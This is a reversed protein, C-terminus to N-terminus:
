TDLPSFLSVADQLETEEQLTFTILVILGEEDIAFQTRRGVESEDKVDLCWYNKRLFTVWSLNYEEYRSAAMGLFKQSDFEPMLYSEPNIYSVIINSGDESNYLIAAYSVDEDYPSKYGHWLNNIHDISADTASAVGAADYFHWTEDDVSIKFGALANYYAGDEYMGMISADTLSAPPEFDADSSSADTFSANILADTISADAPEIVEETDEQTTLKNFNPSSYPEDEVKGCAALSFVFTVLLIVSIYKKLKNM